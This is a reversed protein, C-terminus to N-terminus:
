VSSPEFEEIYTISVIHTKNILIEEKTFSLANDLSIDSEKNHLIDYILKKDKVIYDGKKTINLLIVELESNNSLIFKFIHKKIASTSFRLPYLSLFAYSIKFILFSGGLGLIVIAVSEFNFGTFYNYIIGIIINAYCSAAVLSLLTCCHLYYNINYHESKDKKLNVILTYVGIGLCSLIFLITITLYHEHGFQNFFYLAIFISILIFLPTIVLNNVKRAIKFGNEIKEINSTNLDLINILKPLSSFISSPIQM